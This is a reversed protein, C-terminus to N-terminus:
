PKQKLNKIRVLLDDIKLRLKADKANIKAQEAQREAIDQAGIRLSHEAAAYNAAAENGAM